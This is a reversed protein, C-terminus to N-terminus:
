ALMWDVWIRGDWVQYYLQMAGGGATQVLAAELTPVLPKEVGGSGTFERLCLQARCLGDGIELEAAVPDGDLLVPLGELVYCFQVVWGSEGPEVAWIRLGAAGCIDGLAAQVVEGALEAAATVSIEGDGAETNRVSVLGGAQIRLNVGGDVYVRTSGERYSDAMYSNIGLAPFLGADLSLEAPRPTRVAYSSLDELNRTLLTGGEVRSWSEDQFAFVAGNPTMEELRSKMGDQDLGTSCAQVTEGDRFYLRVRAGEVVLCIEQASSGAAPAAAQNGLWGAILELPLPSLFDFYVGPEELAAQWEEESVTVPGGAGDLAEGLLVSFRDYIQDTLTGYVAGCRQGDSLTVAAAYPRLLQSRDVAGHEDASQGGWDQDVLGSLQLFMLLATLTLLLILLSKGWERLAKKDRM